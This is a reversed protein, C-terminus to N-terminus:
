SNFIMELSYPFGEVPACIPNISGVWNRLTPCGSGVISHGGSGISFIDLGDPSPASRSSLSPRQVANVSAQAASSARHKGSNFLLDDRAQAGDMFAEIGDAEKLQPLLDTPILAVYRRVVDQPPLPLGVKKMNEAAQTFRHNFFLIREQPDLSLSEWQQRAAPISLCVKDLIAQFDAFKSRAPSSLGGMALTVRQCLGSDLTSMFASILARVNEEGAVSSFSKTFHEFLAQPTESGSAGKIDTLAYELRKALPLSNGANGVVEGM